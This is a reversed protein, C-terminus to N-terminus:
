VVVKVHRLFQASSEETFCLSSPSILCCGMGNAPSPPTVNIERGTLHTMQEIIDMTGIVYAGYSRDREGSQDVSRAISGGRCDDGREEAERFVSSGALGEKGIVNGGRRRRVPVLCERRLGITKRDHMAILAGDM